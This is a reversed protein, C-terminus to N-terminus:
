DMFGASPVKVTIVDADSLSFNYRWNDYEEKSIEGNKLKQKQANWAIFMDFLNLYDQGASKDLRLVTEGEIEDVTLGYVDEVAFLTHMLGLYSDIDPVALAKPSVNLNRAISETIEEKPSRVGMEYQAIRIDATSKPFGSLEGLTRQTMKRLTRIHKIREGIAMKMEGKDTIFVTYCTQIEHELYFIVNKNFIKAFAISM